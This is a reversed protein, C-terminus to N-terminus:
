HLSLLQLPPHSSGLFTKFEIRRCNSNSNHDNQSERSRYVPSEFGLDMLIEARIAEIKFFLGKKLQDQYGKL